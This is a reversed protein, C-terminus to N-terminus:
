FGAGAGAGAGASGGMGVERGVGGGVMVRGVEGAGGEECVGDSACWEGIVCGPLTFLPVGGADLVEVRLRGLLRWRLVEVCALPSSKPFEVTCSLGLV